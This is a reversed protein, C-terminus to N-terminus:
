WGSSRAPRASADTHGTARKLAASIADLSPHQWRAAIVRDPRILYFAGTMAGYQRHLTRQPDAVLPFRSATAAPAASVVITTLPVAASQLGQLGAALTEPLEVYDGTFFVATFTDSCLDELPRPGATEDALTVPAGIMSAGPPPGARFKKDIGFRSTLPSTAYDIPAGPAAGGRESAYSDLLAAPAAGHLVLALKWGLNLADEAALARGADNDALDPRAAAGAFFWDGDRLPKPDGAPPLDFCVTYRYPAASTAVASLCTAAIGRRQLDSALAHAAACDGLIAIRTRDTQQAM